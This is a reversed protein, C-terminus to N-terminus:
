KQIEDPHESELRSFSREKEWFPTMIEKFLIADQLSSKMFLEEIPSFVKEVSTKEHLLGEKLHPADSSIDARLHYSDLDGSLHHEDISEIHREPIKSFPEAKEKRDNSISKKPFAKQEIVGKSFYVNKKKDKHEYSSEGHSTDSNDKGRDLDSFSFDEQQNEDQRKGHQKEYEQQKKKQYRFFANGIMFAVFLLFYFISFNSDKQM